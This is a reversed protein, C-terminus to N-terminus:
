DEQESFWPKRAEMILSAALEADLGDVHSIDDISKEALDERSVIGAGVLKQALVSTMGALGLLDEAPKAKESEAKNQLAEKARKQLEGVIDEDFEEIQLMESPDIYAVEELSTFGEQILIGTVDEDVDLQETFLSKITEYEQDSAQEAATNSMVNLTWGSLESALRVNQGSRGIAQSLQDEPVGIDMSKTDEDVMISAVEAPAMANVVLRAPDDDWLIIDIREGNLESSVAQVRSGRMGVCAGIPDIRGDNTKVAIKARSGPDRAAAKIEIVDENIEPVEIRFLAVLMGPRTRSLLLQPGRRDENVAYLLVRLRDNPRVTERPIMEDKYLIGEVNDGFDLLIFDRTVQKVIGTLLDGIREAYQSAIKDREAERVKQLIVQKAQMAGIRAPEISEIPEEVVDGIDLDADVEKAQDITMVTGPAPAEPDDADIGEVVTWRRFRKMTVAKVILQSM